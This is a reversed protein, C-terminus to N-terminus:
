DFRAWAYKPLHANIIFHTLHKAYKDYRERENKVVQSNQTKKPSTVNLKYKYMLQICLLM